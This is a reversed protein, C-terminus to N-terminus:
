CGYRSEALTTSDSGPDGGNRPTPKIRWAQSGDTNNIAHVYLDQTVVVVRNRSPSYAPPSHVASGAPYSWMQQMTMKNVAYVNNGMSFVVRDSLVAPPLPLLIDSAGSPFQGLTAGDTSDMKYLVGNSAVAFVANTDADYAVTSNIYNTEGAPNIRWIQSGNVNNLAYIGDRGAALYVRGGGTVPQMNRPLTRIATPVGNFPVLNDYILVKSVVGSANPGNWSWKWRWPTSVVQDTYSTRQADHAHQTWEGSIVPVPSPTPTPTVTVTVTVPIPTPTPEIGYNTLWTVYDIGDVNSDSNFDGVSPGSIGPTGYNTLWIVYDLGDVKGDNNADGAVSALAPSVSLTLAAVLFIFAKKM